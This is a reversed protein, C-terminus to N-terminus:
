CNETLVCIKQQFVTQTKLLNETLFDTLDCIQKKVSFRNFIDTLFLPRCGHPGLPARPHERVSGTRTHPDPSFNRHRRNADFRPPMVHFQVLSDLM